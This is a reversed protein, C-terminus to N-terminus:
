YHIKTIWVVLHFALYIKSLTDFLPGNKVIDQNMESSNWSHDYKVVGYKVNVEKSDLLIIRNSLSSTPIWTFHILTYKNKEFISAM